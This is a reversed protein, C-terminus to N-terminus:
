ENRGPQSSPGEPRLELGLKKATDRALPTVLAGAPVPWIGDTPTRSLLDQRTIVVRPGSVPASAAAPPVEAPPIPAAAPPAQIQPATSQGRLAILYEGPAVPRVGLTRLQAAYSEYFAAMAPNACEMGGSYSTCSFDMWVPTGRWIAQLILGAAPRDQLGLAMRALLDQSPVALVAELGEWVQPAPPTQLDLLTGPQAYRALRAIADAPIMAEVHLGFRRLAYAEQLVGIAEGEPLDTVVLVRRGPSPPLPATSAPASPSVSPPPAASLGPSGAIQDALQSLLTGTFARKDM